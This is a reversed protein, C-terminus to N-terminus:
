IKMSNEQIGQCRFDYIPKILHWLDVFTAAEGITSPISIAHMNCQVPGCKRPKRHGRHSFIGDTAPKERGEVREGYGDEGRSLRKNQVM